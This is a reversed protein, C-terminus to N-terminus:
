SSLFNNIVKVFQNEYQFLFAHSADPYIVLKSNKILSHLIYNNQLPILVDENGDAILTPTKILNIKKGVPELGLSWSVLAHNQATLVSESALYFNPYKLLEKVYENALEAKNPPFLDSNLATVSSISGIVRASPIVAKGNGPLTACLILHKLDKPYLVAYAQAIMGGMSWGLMDPAKLNLAQIFAHTQIAMDSITLHAPNAIPMQTKGIGANDFIYVRHTKALNDVFSPDWADMSGYYGMIMVLPYGHGTVRYSVTGDSTNITQPVVKYIPIVPSSNASTNSSCSSIIASFLFLLFAKLYPAKKM